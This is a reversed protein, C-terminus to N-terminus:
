AAAELRLLTTKADAGGIYGGLSGDARLVRHCPVVVPLPNTACATGVARVAKPNGVLAAVQGYSRTEGYGIEPLHRQVLSRFGHSLSLDLDVDFTRRRGAFYEELERAVPDLRDPARLIRPSLRHALTDLVQDHDESAYAVRVLGRPTAALLLPGVPSDVTTYALDLLGEAAADAALRRQLRALVGADEPSSALHSLDNM